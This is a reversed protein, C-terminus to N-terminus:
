RSFLSALPKVWVSTSGFNPFRSTRDVQVKGHNLNIMIKIHKLPLSDPIIKAYFLGEVTTELHRDQTCNVGGDGLPDVMSLWTDVAGRWGNKRSARRLMRSYTTFCLWIRPHFSHFKPVTISLLLGLISEYLQDHWKKSWRMWGQPTLCRNLYTGLSVLPKATPQALKWLNM